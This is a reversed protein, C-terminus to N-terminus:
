LIPHGAKNAAGNIQSELREVAALYEAAVPVGEHILEHGHSRAQSLASLLVEADGLTVELRIM